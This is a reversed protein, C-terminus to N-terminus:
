GKSMDVANMYPNGNLENQKLLYVMFYECRIDSDRLDQNYKLVLKDVNPFNQWM